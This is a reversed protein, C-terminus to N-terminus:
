QCRARMRSALARQHLLNLKRRVAIGVVKPHAKGQVPAGTGDLGELILRAVGRQRLLWGASLKKNGTRCPEALPGEKANSGDLVAGSPSRPHGPRSDAGAWCHRAASLKPAFHVV